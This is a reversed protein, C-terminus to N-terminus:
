KLKLRHKIKLFNTFTLKCNTTKGRYQDTVSIYYDNKILRAEDVIYNDETTQHLVENEIFYSIIKRKNDSLIINNNFVM